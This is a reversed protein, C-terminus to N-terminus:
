RLRSKEILIEFNKTLFKESNEVKTYKELAIQQSFFINDSGFLIKNITNNSSLGYNICDIVINLKPKTGCWGFYEQTMSFDLWINKNFNCMKLFDLIDYGGSHSFLFQIENFKNAIKWYDIPQWYPQNLTDIICIKPLSKKIHEIVEDPTYKERRPHYKLIPFDFKTRNNSVYLAGFFFDKHFNLIDSNKLTGSFDPIGELAILFGGSQKEITHAHADYFKTM